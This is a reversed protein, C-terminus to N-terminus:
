SGLPQLLHGNHWLQYNPKNNRCSSVRLFSPPLNGWWQMKGGGRREREKEGWGLIGKKFNKEEGLDIEREKVEKGGM